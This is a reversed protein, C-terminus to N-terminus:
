ATLERFAICLFGLVVPWFITMADFSFRLGFVAAQPMALSGPGFGLTRQLALNELGSTVAELSVELARQLLYVSLCVIVLILLGTTKSLTKASDLLKDPLDM